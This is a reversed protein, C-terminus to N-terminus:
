IEEIMEALVASEVQTRAAGILQEPATVSLVEQATQLSDFPEEQRRGGETLKWIIAAILLFGLILLYM